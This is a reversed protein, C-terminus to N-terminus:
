IAAILARRVAEAGARAIAEDNQTELNVEIPPVDLGAISVDHTLDQLEREMLERVYDFTLRAIREARVVNGGGNVIMLSAEGVELNGVGM